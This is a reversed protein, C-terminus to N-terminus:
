AFPEVDFHLDDSITTIFQPDEIYILADIINKFSKFKAGPHHLIQMQCAEWKTYIGPQKGVKVAYFKSIKPTTAQYLYNNADKLNEFSKFIAGKFGSTQKQCDTWNTYVGPQRGVKVAYVKHKGM